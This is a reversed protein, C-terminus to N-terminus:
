RKASKRTATKRKYNPHSKKFRYAAAKNRENVAHAYGSLQARDIDDLNKYTSKSFAAKERQKFTMQNFWTSSLIGCPKNKSNYFIRSM